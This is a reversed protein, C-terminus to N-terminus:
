LILIYLKKLIAYTNGRNGLVLINQSMRLLHSQKFGISLFEPIKINKGLESLKVGEKRNELLKEAEDFYKKISALMVHEKFSVEFTHFIDSDYIYNKIDEESFEKNIRQFEECFFDLESVYNYKKLLDVMIDSNNDRISVKGVILNIKLKACEDGSEGFLIIDDSYKLIDKLKLKNKDGLNFKTNYKNLFNKIETTHIRSLLLNGNNKKIVVIIIKLLYMIDFHFTSSKLIILFDKFVKIKNSKKICITSIDGGFIYKLKDIHCVGGMKGIFEIIKGDEM